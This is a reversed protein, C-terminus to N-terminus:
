PGGTNLGSRAQRPTIGFNRKFALCFNSTHCYGLEHAIQKLPLATSTLMHHARHMRQRAAYERISVGNRDRFAASLVTPALSVERALDSVCPMASIHADILRQAQRVKGDLGGEEDKAVDLASLIADFGLCLLEGAKANLFEPLVARHV